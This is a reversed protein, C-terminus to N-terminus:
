GSRAAGSFRDDANTRSFRPSRSAKRDVNSKRVVDQRQSESQKAVVAEAAFGGRRHSRKHRWGSASDRLTRWVRRIASRGVPVLISGGVGVGPRETARFAFFTRASGQSEPEQSSLFHLPRLSEFGRLARKGPGVV